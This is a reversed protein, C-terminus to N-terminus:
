KSRIVWDEMFPGYVKKGEENVQTNHFDFYAIGIGPEQYRANEIYEWYNQEGFNCLWKSFELAIEEDKFEITLNVKDAM